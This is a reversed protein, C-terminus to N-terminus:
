QLSSKKHVKYKGDESSHIHKGCKLCLVSNAKVKM